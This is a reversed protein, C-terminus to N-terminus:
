AAFSVITGALPFTNTSVSILIATGSPVQINGRRGKGERERADSDGLESM